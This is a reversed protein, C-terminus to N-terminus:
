VRVMIDPADEVLQEVGREGGGIPLSMGSGGVFIAMLGPSGDPMSIATTTLDFVRRVGDGCLANIRHRLVGGSQYLPLVEGLVVEREHADPFLVDTWNRQTLEDPSWRVLEFFAESGFVLRQRSSAASALPAVSLAQWQPFGALAPDIYGRVAM